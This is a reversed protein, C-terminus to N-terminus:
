IIGCGLPQRLAAAGEKIFQIRACRAPDSRSGQHAGVNIRAKRLPKGLNKGCAFYRGTFGGLNIKYNLLLLDSRVHFQSDM